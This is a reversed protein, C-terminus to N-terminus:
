TGRDPCNSLARSHFSRQKLIRSYWRLRTTIAKLIFYFVTEYTFIRLCERREGRVRAPSPLLFLDPVVTTLKSGGHAGTWGQCLIVPPLNCCHPYRPASQSYLVTIWQTNPATSVHTGLMEVGEGVREGGLRGEARQSGSLLFVFATLLVFAEM